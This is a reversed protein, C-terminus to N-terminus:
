EEAEFELEVPSEEEEEARPSDQPVPAAPSKRHIGDSLGRFCGMEALRDLLGEMEVCAQSVLTEIRNRFFGHLLLAPIATLLGWFTTVLAVSISEALQDPRPQGGSSGLLTFAQIMGFVTGFLGVMPAATGILHCGEARRLLSLGQQRLSDSAAERMLSMEFGKRRGASLARVVACGLFDSAHKLRSELGSLGYRGALAAIQAARGAPLLSKRRVRIGLDLGLAAMAASMPLLVFWVIPGGALFFREFWSSGTIGIEATM